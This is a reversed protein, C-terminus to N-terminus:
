IPSQKGGQIVGSIFDYLESIFEEFKLFQKRSTLFSIILKLMKGNIGIDKFDHILDSHWLSAFPYSYDLFIADVCILSNDDLAIGIAYILDIFQNATNIGARFAYQSDPM